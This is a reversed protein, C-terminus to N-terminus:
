AAVSIWKKSVMKDFTLRNGRTFEGHSEFCRDKIFSEKNSVFEELKKYFFEAAHNEVTRGTAMSIWGRALFGQRKKAEITLQFIANLPEIAIHYMGDDKLEKTVRCVMNNVEFYGHLKGKMVLKMCKDALKFHNIADKKKKDVEPKAAIIAFTSKAIQAIKSM